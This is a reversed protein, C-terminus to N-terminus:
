FHIKWSSILWFLTIALILLSASKNDIASCFYAENYGDCFYQTTIKINNIFAEAYKEGAYDCRYNASSRVCNVFEHYACCYERTSLPAPTEEGKTQKSETAKLFKEQCIRLDGHMEMLCYSSKSSRKKLSLTRPTGVETSHRHTGRVSNRFRKTVSSIVPINSPILKGDSNNISALALCVQKDQINGCTDGILLKTHQIIGQTVKQGSRDCRERALSSVCEEFKFFACCNERQALSSYTEYNIKKSFVEKCKEFEGKLKLLCAVGKLIGEEIGGQDALRERKPLVNTKSYNDSCTWSLEQAEDILYSTLFVRASPKYCNVVISRVCNEFNWYHRCNTETNKTKDVVKKSFHESCKKISRQGYCEGGTWYEDSDEGRCIYHINNRTQSILDSLQHRESQEMCKQSYNFICNMNKRLNSCLMKVNLQALSAESVYRHQLVATKCIELQRSSCEEHIRSAAETCTAFRPLLGNTNYKAGFFRQVSCCAIEDM